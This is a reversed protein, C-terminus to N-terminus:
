LQEDLQEDIWALMTAIARPDHTTDHGLDAFVEVTFNRGDIDAIGELIAVDTATPQSQDRAGYIWLGPVRYTRLLPRPDFGSPGAEELRAAIEEAPLEPPTSEDEGTLRSYLIEEGISVASGSFIVTFAVEPSRQVLIPIVWGAQSIGLLGIHRRDIDDRSRLLDIAAVADMALADFDGDDGPCCRGDSEGVGRKDYSLVAVGAEVLPTTIWSGGFGLRHAEGSGHIFVVAPHPGDSVPLYLTGALVDCDSAFRVEITEHDSHQEHEGVGVSPPCSSEATSDSSGCASAVVVAAAMVAFRVSVRNSRWVATMGLCNRVLSLRRPGDVATVVASAASSGATLPVNLDVRRRHGRCSMIKPPTTWIRVPKQVVQRHGFDLEKM